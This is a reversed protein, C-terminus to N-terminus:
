ANQIIEEITQWSHARFQVYVSNHISITKDACQEFEIRDILPSLNFEREFADCRLNRFYNFFFYVFYRVSSRGGTLGQFVFENSQLAVRNSHLFDIKLSKSFM